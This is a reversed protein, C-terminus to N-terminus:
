SRTTSMVRTNWWDRAKKRTNKHAWFGCNPRGVSPRNDQTMCDVNTGSHISAEGGCFPCPLLGTIKSISPAIPVFDFENVMNGEYEYAM